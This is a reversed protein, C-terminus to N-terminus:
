LHIRWSLIIEMGKQESEKHKQELEVSQQRVLEAEREKQQKIAELLKYQEQVQTMDNEYQEMRDKLQDENEKLESRLHNIQTLQEERFDSNLNVLNGYM